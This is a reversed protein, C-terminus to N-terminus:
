LYLQMQSFCNLLKLKIHKKLFAIDKNLDNGNERNVVVENNLNIACADFSNDDTIYCINNFSNSSHIKSNLIHPSHTSIILQTNM